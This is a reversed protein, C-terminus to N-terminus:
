GLLTDISLELLLRRVCRPQSSTAIAALATVATGAPRLGMLICVRLGPRRANQRPLAHHACSPPSSLCLTNCCLTRALLAAGQSPGGGVSVPLLCAHSVQAAQQLRRRAQPDAALLSDEATSVQEQRHALLPRPAGSASASASASCCALLACLLAWLTPQRMAIPDPAPSSPPRTRILVLARNLGSIIYVLQILFAYFRAHLPPM